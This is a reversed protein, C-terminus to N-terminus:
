RLLSSLQLDDDSLGSDAERSDVVNLEKMGTVASDAEEFEEGGDDSLPLQTDREAEATQPDLSAGGGVRGEEEEMLEKLLAVNERHKKSREHNSYSRHVNSLLLQLPQSQSLNLERMPLRSSSTVPQVSCTATLFTERARKVLM